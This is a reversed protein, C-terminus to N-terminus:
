PGVREPDFQVSEDIIGLQKAWPILRDDKGYPGTYGGAMHYVCPYSQTDENFLRGDQISCHEHTVQFIQCGSDLMPRFWGALWSDRWDFSDDSTPNPNTLMREFTEIIAPIESLHGGVHPCNLRIAKDFGVPPAGSNAFGTYASTLIAPSGMAIYKDIIEGLDGTFFADQGDSYLVHTYDSSVTKLYELQLNLKIHRYITWRHGRGYIQPEIGFKKCSALFIWLKKEVLEEPYVGCTLTLVKM